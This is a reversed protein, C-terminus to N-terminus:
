EKPDFVAIHPLNRYQEQYDLGYGVVFVDPITFGIYQLPIDVKKKSEKDLLACIKMSKPNRLRLYDAATQITVGTDVVSDVLILDKGEAESGLERTVRIREQSVGRYSSLGLFDVEIQLETVRILDSLFLFAGKLVGVFTPSKGRYDASIERGLQSVKLKLEEETVLIRGIGLTWGRLAQSVVSFFKLICVALHLNSTVVWNGCSM